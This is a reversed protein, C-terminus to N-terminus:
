VGGATVFCGLLLLAGRKDSSVARKDSSEAMPAMVKGTKM